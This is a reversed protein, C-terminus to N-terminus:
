SREGVRRIEVGWKAAFREAAARDVSRRHSAVRDVKLGGPGNGTLAQNWRITYRGGCDFAKHGWSTAGM